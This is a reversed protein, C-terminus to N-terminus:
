QLIQTTEHIPGFTHLDELIHKAYNSAHSNTKFANKHENYREAFGRGTQGIYAKKCDPWTLKCAGSHMCKDPIEYKQMPLKQINNKTRLAIRLGAKKFLNTIFM